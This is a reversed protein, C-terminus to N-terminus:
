LINKRYKLPSVLYKSKFLKSFYFQDQIGVKEAITSITDNTHTLLESAVSLRYENLYHVPSTGLTKKFFDYLYSESINMIEAMQSVTIKKAYNERIYDLLTHFHKDKYISKETSIELLHKLMRYLCSMKDCVSECKEFDDFDSDLILSYNKDTVVPFDFVDDLRYKNNIIVDLFVYRATFINKDTNIFHTIKQRMMSPAIFFGGEGTTYEKLNGIKINYSGTKSQVISLNPLQKIHVFGNNTSSSFGSYFFDQINIHTINM